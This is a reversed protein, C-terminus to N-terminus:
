ERPIQLVARPVTAFPEYTGIHSGSGWCRLEGDDRVACTVSQGVGIAVVNSLSAVTIPAIYTLVTTGDGLSPQLSGWCRVQGTARLACIHGLGASVAVADPLDSIERPTTSEYRNQGILFGSGSAGSGWCMVKGSARVVCAYQGNALNSEVAIADSIGVVAVPTTSNTVGGALGVIQGWCSVQGGALVACSHSSGTSVDVADSLGSVTVPTTANSTSGNGLKGLAGEGWCRVDGASRVACTHREGASVEVVGTLGSVNVPTNANVTSGNGLKGLAGEGWCRVEGTARLACSHRYGVTIETADLLDTVLVPTYTSDFNGNGGHGLQSFTNNGWCHVRGLSTVACTHSAGVDVGEVNSMKKISVPTAATVAASYLQPESGWCRVTGLSDMACSRAGNTSVTVAGAIGLAAVPSSSLLAGGGTGNGLQGSGNSGWCSVAGNSRVACTTNGGASVAVADAMGGVAVPTATYTGSALGNPDTNGNGLQGQSGEGWCRMGGAQRVACGHSLGLDVAVADTLGSVAIPTTQYFPTSGSGLGGNYGVGWCSVSGTARLACSVSGGATVATADTINLVDVPTTSDTQTGNGLQGGNNRGWCAVSGTSRLACTHEYGVSVTVADTLNSVTVPTASAQSQGNGLRGYQGTGWCSVTGGDHVVCAHGSDASIWVANSLGAMEVLETNWCYVKGGNGIV